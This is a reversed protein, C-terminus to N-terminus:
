TLTEVTWEAGLRPGDPTQYQQHGTSGLVRVDAVLGGLSDDAELRAKVSADGDPDLLGDLYEAVDGVEEAPLVRVRFRRHDFSNGQSYDTPAAYVTLEGDVDLRGRLARRIETTSSM